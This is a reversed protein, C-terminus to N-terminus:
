NTQGNSHARPWIAIATRDDDASTLDFSIDRAFCTAEIPQAWRGAIHDGLATNGGEYMLFSALGDTTLLLVDHPDLAFTKVHADDAGFVGQTATAHLGDSERDELLPRFSGDTLVLAPSDGIAILVGDFNGDVNPEARVAVATLTAQLENLDTDTPPTYEASAIWDQQSNQTQQQVAETLKSLFPVIQQRVSAAYESVEVHQQKRLSHMILAVAHEAAVSSGIASYRSSGVGDSVAAVIWSGSVGTLPAIRFSDDNPAGRLQHRRGRYTTGAVALNAHVGNQVVLDRMEKGSSLKNWNKPTWWPEAGFTTVGDGVILPEEDKAFIPKWDQQPEINEAGTERGRKVSTLHAIVEAQERKRAKSTWFKM